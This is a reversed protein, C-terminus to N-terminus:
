LENDPSATLMGVISDPDDDIWISVNLGLSQMYERKPTGNTFFVTSDRPIGIRDFDATDTDQRGTVFIPKFGADRLIVIVKLWAEPAATFTRDIDMAVVTFLPEKSM